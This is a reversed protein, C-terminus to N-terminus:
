LKINEVLRCYYAIESPILNKERKKDMIKSTEPKRRKLRITKALVPKSYSVNFFLEQGAVPKRFLPGRFLGFSELSLAYSDSHNGQDDLVLKIGNM